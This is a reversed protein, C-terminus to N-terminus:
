RMRIRVVMHGAAQTKELRDIFVVSVHEFLREFHLFVMGSFVMVELFTPFALFIHVTIGNEFLPPELSTEAV